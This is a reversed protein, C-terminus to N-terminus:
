RMEMMITLAKELGELYGSEYDTPKTGSKYFKKTKQIEAALECLASYTKEDVTKNLKNV